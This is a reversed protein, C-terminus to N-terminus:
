PSFYEAQNSPYALRYYAGVNIYYVGNTGMSNTDGPPVLGGGGGGTNTNYYTVETPWFINTDTYYSVGGPSVYDTYISEWSLLNTSRLIIVCNTSQPYPSPTYTMVDGADNTVNLYGNTYENVDTDVENTNDSQYALTGVGNLTLSFVYNTPVNLENTSLTGFYNNNTTVYGIENQPINEGAITIWPNTNIDVGYEITFGDPTVPSVLPSDQGNSYFPGYQPYIEGSVKQEDIETEIYVTTNTSPPSQNSNSGHTYIWIKVVQIVISVVVAAVIIIIVGIIVAVIAEGIEGM